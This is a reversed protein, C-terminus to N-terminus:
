DVCANCLAWSDADVGMESMPFLRECQSCRFAGNASAFQTGLFLLEERRLEDVEDWFQASTDADDILLITEYNKKAHQTLNYSGTWVITQDILIFKHHMVGEQWDGSGLLYIRKEVSSGNGIRGDFAEFYQRLAEYARRYGRGLDATNLFVIKTQAHSKIIAAAVAADTFWASAVALRTRASVIDDILRHLPFPRTPKNFLVDIKM